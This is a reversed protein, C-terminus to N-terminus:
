YAMSPAPMTTTDYPTELPEEHEGRDRFVHLIRARGLNEYDPEPYVDSKFPEDLQFEHILVRTGPLGHFHVDEARKRGGHVDYIEFLMRLVKNFRKFNIGDEVFILDVQLARLMQYVHHRVARPLVRHYPPGIIGSLISGEALNLEDEPMDRSLGPIFWYHPAIWFGSGRKFQQRAAWKFMRELGSVLRRRLQIENRRTLRELAPSERLAAPDIQLPWKAEFGPEAGEAVDVCVDLPDPRAPASRVKWGRRQFYQDLVPQWRALAAGSLHVIPRAPRAPDRLRGLLAQVVLATLAGPALWALVLGLGTTIPMTDPVGGRYGLLSSGCALAVLNITGLTLIGFECTVWQGWPMCRVKGTEGRRRWVFTVDPNAPVVITALNIGLAVVCMALPVWLPLFSGAVLLLGYYIGLCFLERRRMWREQSGARGVFADHIIATPIVIAVLTCVMLVVWLAMLLLLYGIYFTRVGVVRLVHPFASHFLLLTLATVGLAVMGATIRRPIARPLPPTGRLDVGIDLAGMKLAQWLRQALGGLAEVWALPAQRHRSVILLGVLGLVAVSVADHVDSVCGRHGVVEVTVLVALVAATFWIDPGILRRLDRWTRTLLEM